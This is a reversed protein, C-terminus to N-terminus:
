YHSWSYRTAARARKTLFRFSSKRRHNEEDGLREQLRVPRDSDGLNRDIIKFRRENKGQFVRGGKKKAGKAFAAAESRGSAGEGKEPRSVQCRGTAERAATGTPGMARIPLLTLGGGM